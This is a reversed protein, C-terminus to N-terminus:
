NNFISDLKNLGYFYDVVRVKIVGMRQPNSAKAGKKELLCTLWLIKGREINKVTLSTDISVSEEIKKIEDIDTIMGTIQLITIPEKIKTYKGDDTKILLIDDSLNSKDKIDFDKFKKIDDSM